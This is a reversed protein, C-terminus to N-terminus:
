HRGRGMGIATQCASAGWQYTSSQQNTFMHLMSNMGEFCARSWLDIKPDKYGRGTNHHPSMIKKFDELATLADDQSVCMHFDVRPSNPNIPTPNFETYEYGQLAGSQPLHTNPHLPNTSLSHQHPPEVELLRWNEEINNIRDSEQEQEDGNELQIQSQIVVPAQSWYIREAANGMGMLKWLTPLLPGSSTGYKEKSQLNLLM